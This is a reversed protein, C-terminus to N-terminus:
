KRKDLHDCKKRRGQRSAMRFDTPPTTNDRPRTRTPNHTFRREPNMKFNTFPKKTLADHTRAGQAVNHSHILKEPSFCQVKSGDSAQSAPKIPGYIFCMNTMSVEGSKNYNSVRVFLAAMM